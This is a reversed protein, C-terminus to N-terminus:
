CWKVGKPKQIIDNQTMEKVKHNKYNQTHDLSEYIDMSLYQKSRMSRDFKSPESDSTWM